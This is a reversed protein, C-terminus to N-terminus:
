KENSSTKNGKKKQIQRKGQRYAEHAQEEAMGHKQGRKPFCKRRQRRRTLKGTNSTRVNHNKSKITPPISSEGGNEM